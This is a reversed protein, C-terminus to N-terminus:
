PAGVIRRYYASLRDLVIGSDFENVVHDRGAKGMRMREEADDVLTKIGQALGRPDRPEVLLGTLGDVVAERCGRINSTVVPLEMASAELVTRPIGERHSPLVFIDMASYLDPLDNRYGLHRVRSRDVRNLLRDPRIQDSQGPDDPAVLLIRVKPRSAMVRAMAEVFERFGKEEVLRGVMGVVVADDAFGLQERVDSRAEPVRDRSFRRVDIGNGIYEVRDSSRLRYRTVVGVDERSQSLLRHALRATWLECAFGLPKTKPPTRDHFLLGHITHLIIPTRALRAALPALLGAKPTHSHVVHYRRRTFLEKLARISRLDALPAPERLLPVTQVPIGLDRVEELAPGPASVAEVEYGDDRLREIQDLLLFRISMPSTAVQAVRIVM